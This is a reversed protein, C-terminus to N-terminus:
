AAVSEHELFAAVKRLCFYLRKSPRGNKDLLRQAPLGKARLDYVHAVDCGMWLALGEATVWRAENEIRQTVADTIQTLWQSPLELAVSSPSTLVSTSPGNTSM